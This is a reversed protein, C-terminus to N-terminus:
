RAAEARAQTSLYDTIQRRLDRVALDDLARIQGLEDAGSEGRTMFQTLAFTQSVLNNERRISVIAQHRLELRLAVGSTTKQVEREARSLKIDVRMDATDSVVLQRALARRLDRAIADGEIELSALQLQPAKEDFKYIPSFGCASLFGAVCFTLGIIASQRFSWISSAGRSSSQKKSRSAM